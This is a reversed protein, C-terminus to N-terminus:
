HTKKKSPSPEKAPESKPQQIPPPNDLFSKPKPIEKIEDQKSINVPPKSIMLNITEVKIEPKEVKEDKSAEIIEKEDVKIDSDAPM